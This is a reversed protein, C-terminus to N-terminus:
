GWYSLEVTVTEGAHVEVMKEDLYTGGVTTARVIHTGPQIGNFTIWTDSPYEGKCVGDIYFKVNNHLVSHYIVKIAGTTVNIGMAPLVYWLTLPVLIIILIIVVVVGILGRHTKKPLPTIIIPQPYSPPQQAEPPTYISEASVEIQTLDYGCYPCVKWGKEIERGCNPCYIKENMEGV